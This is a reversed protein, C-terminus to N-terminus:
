SFSTYLSTRTYFAGNHLPLINCFINNNISKTPHKIKNKQQDYHFFYQLYNETKKCVLTMVIVAMRTQPITNQTHRLM